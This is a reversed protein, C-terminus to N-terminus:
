DGELILIDVVRVEVEVSAIRRRVVEEQEDGFFDDDDM